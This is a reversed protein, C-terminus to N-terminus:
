CQTQSSRNRNQKWRYIAKKSNARIYHSEEKPIAAIFTKVSNRINEDVKSHNGHCGRLVKMASINTEKNMKKVATEIPCNNIGLINKFFIKCVRIKVGSVTFCANNNEGKPAVNEQSDIKVYRNKPGSNRCPESNIAVGSWTWEKRIDGM